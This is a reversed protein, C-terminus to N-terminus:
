VTNILLGFGLVVICMALFAGTVTVVFKNNRLHSGMNSTSTIIGSSNSLPNPSLELADSEVENDTNHVAPPPTPSLTQHDDPPPSTTTAIVSTTLPLADLESDSPTTEPTSGDDYEYFYDNDQALSLSIWLLIIALSKRVM